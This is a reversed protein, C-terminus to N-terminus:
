DVEGAVEAPGDVGAGTRDPEARARAERVADRVAIFDMWTAAQRMTVEYDYAPIERLTAIGHRSLISKRIQGGLKTVAKKDDAFGKEDLLQRARARIAEGIYKEQAKSVPTRLRALKELAEIRDAALQQAAAIQELAEGNRRLIEGISEMVPAIIERIAAEMAGRGLPATAAPSQPTAGRAELEVKCLETM